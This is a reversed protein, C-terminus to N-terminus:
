LVKIDICSYIDQYISPHERDYAKALNLNESSRAKAFLADVVRNYSVCSVLVAKNGYILYFDAAYSCHRKIDSKASMVFNAGYRWLAVAAGTKGIYRYYMQKDNVCKPYPFIFTGYDSTPLTTSIGISGRGVYHFSFPENDTYKTMDPKLEKLLVWPRMYGNEEADFEPLKKLHKMVNYKISLFGINSRCKRIMYLETASYEFLETLRFANNNM